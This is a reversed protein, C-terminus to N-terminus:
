KMMERQRMVVFRMIRNRIAKLQPNKDEVFELGLLFVDAEPIHRRSRVRCWLEFPGDEEKLSFSCFLLDGREVSSLRNRGMGRISLGGGSIDVGVAEFLEPEGKILTSVVPGKEERPYHHFRVMMPKQPSFDVRYYERREGDLLTQPYTIQIAHVMRAGAQAERHSEIRTEFRYRYRGHLFQGELVEGVSLPQSTPSDATPRDVLLSEKKGEVALFRSFFLETSQKDRRKLTLADNGDVCDQILLHEKDSLGMLGSSCLQLLFCFGTTEGRM